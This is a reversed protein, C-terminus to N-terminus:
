AAKRKLISFLKAKAKGAYNLLRTEAGEPRGQMLWLGAHAAVYVGAGVIIAVALALLREIVEGDRPAIWSISFASVYMLVTALVSRHCAKIQDIVTAGTVHRVLVSNVVLMIIATLLCAALLGDFGAVTIGILVLMVKVALGGLNRLFMTRTMGKALLASDVASIMVMIGMVPALFAVVQGARDWQEGLLLPMALYSVAGLGFSIPLTVAAIFAQSSLYARKLREEDSHIMSFASFLSRFLPGGIAEHIRQVFTAGVSMHGLLSMGLVRGAALNEVQQHMQNVISVGTLWASFGFIRRFSKLTLKPLRPLMVFTLLTSILGTTVLGIVLAWYSRFLFAITVTVLFSAVKSVVDVIVEKSFQMSRAFQEFYSNRLGIVIPYLALLRLINVLEPENFINAVPASLLFVVASIFLSKLISITWATSYDDDTVDPLQILVLGTPIEFASAILVFVSMSIAVIGFDEPTLLRALVLTTMFGVLSAMFRGGLLWGAGTMVRQTLM